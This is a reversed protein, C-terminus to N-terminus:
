YMRSIDRIWNYHDYKKVWKRLFRDQVVEKINPRLFFDKSLMKKILKGFDEDKTLGYRDYKRVIKDINTITKM